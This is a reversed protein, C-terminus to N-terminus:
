SIELVKNLVKNQGKSIVRPLYELITFDNNSGENSFQKQFFNVGAEATEEQDELEGENNQIRRLKM